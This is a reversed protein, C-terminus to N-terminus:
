YTYDRPSVEVLKMIKSRSSSLYQKVSELTTPIQHHQSSKLVKEVAKKVIVNHADKSLNGERWKPKLLEKVFDILAARFHRLAKSEKHMSEGMTCDVEEEKNQRVRDVKLDKIYRSRDSQHGGDSGEAIQNLKINDGVNSLELANEETPKTEGMICDVEEEKNDGIRDVKVEKICRSGDRQHRGDSNDAITDTKMNDGVDSLEMAIEKPMTENQSGFSTVFAEAENAVVDKECTHCSKDLLNKNCKNHSSVSNIDDNSALALTRKVSDSYTKQYSMNVVSSGQGYFPRCSVDGMKPLEFSDRLPDYQSGPSSMAPPIFFSPRFPVSPEWDDSSFNPKLEASLLPTSASPLSDPESGSIPSSSRLFSLSRSGLSSGLLSPYSIPLSSANWTSVHNSSLMNTRLLPNSPSSYPSHSMSPLTHYNRMHHSQINALKEFSSSYSSLKGISYKDTMITYGGSPFGYEPHLINRLLSGGRSTLLEENSSDNASWNGRRSERGVDQFLPPFGSDGRSSASQEAVHSTGVSLGKNQTSLLEHKEPFQNRRESEIQELKQTGESAFHM